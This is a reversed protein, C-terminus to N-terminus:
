SALLRAANKPTIGLLHAIDEATNDPREKRLNEATWVLSPSLANAFIGPRSLTRGIKLVGEYTLFETPWQGATIHGADEEGLRRLFYEDYIQEEQAVMWNQGCVSCISLYLWWLDDGHNCVRKVTAFIREDLGGCGMPVAALDPISLCKCQTHPELRQALLRRLTWVEDRDTYFTSALGWHLDNGLPGELGEQSLFWKEFAPGSTEDRAFSWLKSLQEKTM